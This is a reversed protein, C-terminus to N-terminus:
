CRGGAERWVAALAMLRRAEPQDEVAVLAMGGQLTLEAALLM